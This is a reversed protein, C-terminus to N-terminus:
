EQEGERQAYASQALSLDRQLRMIRADLEAKRGANELRADFDMPGPIDLGERAIRLYEFDRALTTIDDLTM